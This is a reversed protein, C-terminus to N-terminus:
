ATKEKRKFIQVMASTLETQMQKERKVREEDTLIPRHIRIICNGHRLTKTNYTSM